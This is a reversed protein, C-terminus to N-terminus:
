KNVPDPDKRFVLKSSNAYIYKPGSCKKERHVVLLEKFMLHLYKWNQDARLILSLFGLLRLSSAWQKKELSKLHVSAENNEGWLCSSATPHDEGGSAM